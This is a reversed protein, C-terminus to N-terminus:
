FLDYSARAVAFGHGSGEDECRVGTERSTCVIEGLRVAQGYQLVRLSPDVLTDSVCSLEGRQGQTVVAGTGYASACDSPTQPIQWTRERVDCRAEGPEVLCAINRSPTAFRARGDGFRDDRSVDFEQIGGTPPAASPASAAPPPSAPAAEGTTGPRNILVVALAAMAAVAVAAAVIASAVGRRRRGDDPPHIVPAGVMTPASVAAPPPGTIVTPAGASAPPAAPAVPAPAVPAPAPEDIARLRDRVQAASPRAAPDKHLCALVIERLEADVPGLEPPAAAVRHAEAAPSEAAFPSRGTTAFVIVSGFSFIDSAPGVDRAGAVLEPSLFTPAGLAPAGAYPTGDATRAIGFDVLRPGDEALIVNSPKLDRHALGAGHLAALGEAMRVALAVTGQQGLPGHEAVFRHLPPGEVFATALWPTEADPDADLV